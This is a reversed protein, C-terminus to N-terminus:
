RRLTVTVTGQEDRVQGYILKALASVRDHARTGLAWVPGPM